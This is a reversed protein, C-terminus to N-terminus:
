CYVVLSSFISCLERGGGEGSGEEGRGVRKFTPRTCMYM